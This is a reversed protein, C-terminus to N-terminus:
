MTTDSSFDNNELTYLEKTLMSYLHNDSLCSKCLFDAEPESFANISIGHYCRSFDSIDFWNM